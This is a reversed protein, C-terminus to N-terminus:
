NVTRNLEKRYESPLSHYVEKFVRTFSAVSGFGVRAAIETLTLEPLTLLREAEQVKRLSLYEVFSCSTYQKFLHMFHSRSLGFRKSLDDVNIELTDETIVEYLATLPTGM